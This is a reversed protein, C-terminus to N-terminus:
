KAQLARSTGTRASARSHPPDTSRRTNSQCSTDARALEPRPRGAAPARWIGGSVPGSRSRSSGTRGRAVRRGERVPLTGDRDSTRFPSTTWLCRHFKAHFIVKRFM